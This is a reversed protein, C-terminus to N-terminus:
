SFPFAIGYFAIIKLNSFAKPTVKGLYFFSLDFFFVEASAAPSSQTMKFNKFKLCFHVKIKM